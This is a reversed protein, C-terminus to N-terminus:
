EPRDTKPALLVALAVVGLAAVLVWAVGSPGEGPPSYGETVRVVAPTAPVVTEQETATESSPPPCLWGEVRPNDRFWGRECPAEWSVGYLAALNRFHSECEPYGPNEWCVNSQAAEEARERELFCEPSNTSTSRCTSEARDLAARVQVPDRFDILPDRRSFASSM